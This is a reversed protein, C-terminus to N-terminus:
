PAVRHVGPLNSLGGEAELGACRVEERGVAERGNSVEGVAEPAAPGQELEVADELLVLLVPSKGPRMMRSSSPSMAEHHRSPATAAKRRPRKTSVSLM